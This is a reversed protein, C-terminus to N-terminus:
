MFNYAACLGTMNNSNLIMNKITNYNTFSKFMNELNDILINNPYKTDYQKYMISISGPINESSALNLFYYMEVLTISVCTKSNYNEYLHMVNILLEYYINGKSSNNTINYNNVASTLYMIKTTLDRDSLTQINHEKNKVKKYIDPFHTEIVCM